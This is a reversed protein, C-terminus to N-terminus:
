GVCGCCAAAPRCHKASHPSKPFVLLCDTGVGLKVLLLLLPPPLLLPLHLQGLPLTASRGIARRGRAAQRFRLSERGSRCGQQTALLLPLLAETPRTRRGRSIRQHALVTKEVAHQSFLLQESSPSAIPLLVAPHEHVLSLASRVQQHSLDVELAAPWRRGRQGRRM